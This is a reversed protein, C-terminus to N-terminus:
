VIWHGFSSLAFMYLEPYTCSGCVSVQTVLTALCFWLQTFTVKGMKLIFIVINHKQTLADNKPFTKSRFVFRIKSPFHRPARVSKPPINNAQKENNKQGIVPKCCEMPFNFITPVADKKLVLQRLM